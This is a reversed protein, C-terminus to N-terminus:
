PRAGPGRPAGSERALARAALARELAQLAHARHSIARKDDPDLEAFTRGAARADDPVFLPDYGFGGHGRPTEVIRGACTGLVEAVPAGDEVLCLACAFRARRDLVGALAELLRARNSADDADPGAYRASRVGPAGGLAAVELGSDDALAPLGTATAYHLAKRRANAVLDDADERAVPVGPFAGLDVLEWGLRALVPRLEAQKGRNTTAVLV